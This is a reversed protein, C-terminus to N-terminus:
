KEKIKGLLPHTASIYGEVDYQNTEPNYEKKEVISHIDLQHLMKGEDAELSTVYYEWGEKM